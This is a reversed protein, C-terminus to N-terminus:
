SSRRRPHARPKAVPRDPPAEEPIAKPKLRARYSEGEIVLDYAANIFRDIASQARLVDDFMTLWEGTDRNSTVIMSARGTREVFLQYVDKSEERGMSELAFDDLILLDVSTLAAMEADRSNDFRSQRLTHLMQDARLFRVQYGHRTALHGLATALFTKGVGVPGLITIHRHSALFRLSCLEAFLRKDYTIKATPDFHEMQM